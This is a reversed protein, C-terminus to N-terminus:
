RTTFVGPATQVAAYVACNLGETECKDWVVTDGNPSVKPRDNFLSDSTLPTVTGTSVDYVAIQPLNNPGSRDEFAVLNGGISPNSRKLGPVITQTQSVTDFVRITDGTFTVETYAVHNGSIDSLLDVENGPIVNDAGTAMDRY